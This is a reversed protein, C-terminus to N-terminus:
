SSWNFRFRSNGSVPQHRCHQQESFNQSSNLPASFPITSHKCSIPPQSLYVTPNWLPLIQSLLSSVSFLTSSVPVIPTQAAKVGDPADDRLNEYVSACVVRLVQFSVRRFGAYLCPWSADVFIDAGGATQWVSTRALRIIRYTVSSLLSRYLSHFTQRSFTFV